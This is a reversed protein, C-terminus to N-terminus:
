EMFQKTFSDKIAEDIQQQTLWKAIIMQAEHRSNARFPDFIGRCFPLQETNQIIKDGTYPKLRIVGTDDLYGWWWKGNKLDVDM